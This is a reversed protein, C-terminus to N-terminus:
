AGSGSAKEAGAGTGEVAVVNDTKLPVLGLPVQLKNMMSSVEPPPEQSRAPPHHRPMVVLAALEGVEVAVAVGVRVAVAERVGVTPGTDQLEELM